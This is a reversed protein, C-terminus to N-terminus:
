ESPHTREASRPGPTDQVLQNKGGDIFSRARILDVEEVNNVFVESIHRKGKLQLLDYATFKKKVMQWERPLSVVDM